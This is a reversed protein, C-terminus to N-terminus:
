KAATDKSKGDEVLSIEVMEAGDGKRLGIAKVSTFGSPRNKFRDKFVEIM